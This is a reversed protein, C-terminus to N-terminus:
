FSTQGRTKTWSTVLWAKQGVKSGLTCVCAGFHMTGLLCHQSASVAGKSHALGKEVPRIQM